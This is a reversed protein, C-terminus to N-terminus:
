FPNSSTFPGGVACCLRFLEDGLASYCQGCSQLLDPLGDNDTKAIKLM